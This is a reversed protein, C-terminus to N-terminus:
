NRQRRIFDRGWKWAVGIVLLFAVPWGSFTVVFAIWQFSSYGRIFSWTYDGKLDEIVQNMGFIGSIVTYITLITLM